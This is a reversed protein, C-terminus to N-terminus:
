ADIAANKLLITNLFMKNLDCGVSVYINHDLLYVFLCFALPQPSKGPVVDYNQSFSVLIQYVAQGNQLYYRWLRVM